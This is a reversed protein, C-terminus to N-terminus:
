QIRGGPRLPVAFGESHNAADAVRIAKIARNGPARLAPHWVTVSMVGGPVNALRVVGNADTKAAWPTDVVAVYASMRDHINCGLAVIGAQDFRVARNDERAYLKLEFKKAPSFSYVHHRVKDRNPFAVTSGAPVITVFPQFQIERQEVTFSGGGRPAPTPRGTLEITVVANPVAAGSADRVQVTVNAAIAPQTVTAAFAAAALFSRNM